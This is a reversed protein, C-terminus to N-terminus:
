SYNLKPTNKKKKIEELIKITQRRTNERTGSNDIIYDAYKEKDKLDMQCSIRIGAEELSFGDRRMLRKLQIDAPLTVLVVIDVRKHWGAEILLPVNVVVLANEDKATIAQIQKKTERLVQPHIIRNLRHLKQRDHFVIEGLRTRNLKKNKDLIEAGFVEVIKEWAPYHPLVVERAIKDADILYAGSEAFVSAVLNKGCAMGGTLGIVRM